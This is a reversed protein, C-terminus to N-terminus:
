PPLQPSTVHQLQNCADFRSENPNLSRVRAVVGPSASARARDIRRNAEIGITARLDRRCALLVHASVQSHDCIMLAPRRRPPQEVKFCRHQSFPPARM